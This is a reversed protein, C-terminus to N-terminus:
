SRASNRPPQANIQDAEFQLLLQHLSEGGAQRTKFYLLATVISTYSLYLISCPLWLVEYFSDEALTRWSITAPAVTLKAGSWVDGFEFEPPEIQNQPSPPTSPTSSPNAQAPPYTLAPSPDSAVLADIAVVLALSLAMPVLYILSTTALVTPFSRRTLSVSRRFAARCSLREMMISPSILVYRASFWLGPLLCCLSGLTTILSSLTVAQLLSKAQKWAHRIAPAVRLPRLPVALAHAVIWTVVGTVLAACFTQIFFSAVSLAGILVSTLTGVPLVNLAILARCALVGVLMLASPITLLLTVGMIEVFREGYIIVARRLLSGMGESAARLQSALSEASAPRNDASKALAAHIVEAVKAPVGKVVLRPPDSHQHGALVAEFGGKFPPHGSLMQYAIVGLAYVDSRATPAEGRCLEPALYLPTGLVTGLRTLHSSYLPPTTTITAPPTDPPEHTGGGPEGTAIPQATERAPTMLVTTAATDSPPRPTTPSPHESEGDPSPGAPRAVADEESLSLPAPAAGPSPAPEDLKAIGFDLVKVTHGGRQNPELWINEPKLDRHIVGHRHAHDVASCVQELVDITWALTLRKESRLEDALSHGDLYEMVLYAVPGAPSEATGFDTVNVVNPHRLRGVARAERRFREVFEVREMFEPSIVKVAVVRETGVHTALYVTGMGGRGLPKEIRYKGDLTRGILGDKTM